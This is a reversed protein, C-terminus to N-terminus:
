TKCYFGTKLKIKKGPKKLDSFSFTRTMNNAKLLEDMEDLCIIFREYAEGTKTLEPRDVCFTMCIATLGSKKMEGALDYKQGAFVEKNFPVDIHNHTGIGMTKAVIKDVRSDYENQARLLLPTLMMATGAGTITVIFKRRSCEQKISNM